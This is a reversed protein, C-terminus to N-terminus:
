ILINNMKKASQGANACRNCFVIILTDCSILRIYPFVAPFFKTDTYICHNAFTMTEAPEVVM